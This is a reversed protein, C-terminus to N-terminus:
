DDKTVRLHIYIPVVMMLVGGIAMIVMSTTIHM